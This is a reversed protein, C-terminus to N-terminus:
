ISHRGFCFTEWFREQGVFAKRRLCYKGFLWAAGLIHASSYCEGSAEDLQFMESFFFRKGVLGIFLFLFWLLPTQREVLFIFRLSLDGGGRQLFRSSLSKRCAISKCVDVHGKMSSQTVRLGTYPFTCINMHFVLSSPIFSVTNVCPLGLCRLCIPPLCIQCICFTFLLRICHKHPYKM